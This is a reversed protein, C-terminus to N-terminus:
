ACNITRMREPPLSAYGPIYPKGSRLVACIIRLLKNAINNIVLKGPKGSSTKRLFYEKFERNHTRLSLAALCLLKRISGPGNKRCRPKSHVSKGSSREYPCIVLYSALERPNAEREGGRTVVLVYSALQLGVGPVSLLARMRQRFFPREAMLGRIEGDIERILGRLEEILGEYMREAMPTRIFERRLAKLANQHMTASTTFQERTRLLARVQKLVKDEPEWMHLEDYFRL